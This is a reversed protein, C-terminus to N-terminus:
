EAAAAPAAPSFTAVYAAVDKREDEKKVKLTMKSKAKSDDLYKRLFGTPDEIYDAIEEQNWVLGKEGAAIMSDSYKHGEFTGAVRGIVDNLVPGTKDKAGEGVDHCAKCKKFVKEGQAADGVHDDAYVPGALVFLASLLALGKTSFHM